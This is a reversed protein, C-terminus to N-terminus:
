VESPALLVWGDDVGLLAILTVWTADSQVPPHRRHVCVRVIRAPESLAVTRVARAVGISLDALNGHLAAADGPTADLLAFAARTAHLTTVPAEGPICASVDVIDGAAVAARLGDADLQEWLVRTM